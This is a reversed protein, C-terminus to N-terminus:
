IAKSNISKKNKVHKQIKELIFTALDSLAAPFLILLAGYAAFICLINKADDSLSDLSKFFAEYHNLGYATIVFPYILCFIDILLYIFRYFKKM